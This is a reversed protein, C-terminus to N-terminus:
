CNSSTTNLLAAALRWFRARLHLEPLLLSLMEQFIRAKCLGDCGFGIHTRTVSHKLYPRASAVEGKAKELASAGDNSDLKVRAKGGLETATKAARLMLVFEADELGVHHMGVQGMEVEANCVDGVLDAGREDKLEEGAVDAIASGDDHELAFKSLAKKGLRAGGLVAAERGIHLEEGADLM